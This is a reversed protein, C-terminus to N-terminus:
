AGPVAEAANATEVGPGVMRMGMALSPTLSDGLLHVQAIKGGDNQAIWLVGQFALQPGEPEIWKKSIDHKRATYLVRATAVSGEEITDMLSFTGGPGMSMFLALKRIIDDKTKMVRPPMTGTADEALREDLFAKFRKADGLTHVFDRLTQAPSPKATTNTNM